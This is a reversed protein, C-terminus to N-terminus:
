LHKVQRVAANVVFIRANNSEGDAPFVFFGVKQPNYAETTGAIKENDRFTVELKRGHAGSSVEQSDNRESNGAFDKVFFIAKVDRLKVDTGADQASNPEPFLRFSDRLPSFNFIYGKLRAGDSKGVVVKSVSSAQSPGTAM